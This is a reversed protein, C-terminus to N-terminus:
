TTSDLLTYNTPNLDYMSTERQLSQPSLDVGHDFGGPLWYTEALARLMVAM